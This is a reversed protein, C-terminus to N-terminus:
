KKFVEKMLEILETRHWVVFHYNHQPTQVQLGNTIIRLTSVEKLYTIDQKCIWEEGNQINLSHPKFLLGNEHIELHGGVSEIGRFLTASVEKVLNGYNEM